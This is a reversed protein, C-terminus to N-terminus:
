RTKRVMNQAEIVSRLVVNDALALSSVATVPWLEQVLTTYDGRAYAAKAEDIGAWAQLTFVLSLLGLLVCLAVGACLRRARWPAHSSQYVPTTPIPISPSPPM